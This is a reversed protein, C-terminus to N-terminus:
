PLIHPFLLLYSRAKCLFVTVKSQLRWSGETLFPFLVAAQAAKQTRLPTCQLWALMGQRLFLPSTHYEFLLGGLATCLRPPESHKNWDLDLFRRQSPTRPASKPTAGPCLERWGSGQQNYCVARHSVVTRLARYLCQTSWTLLVQHGGGRNLYMGTKIM